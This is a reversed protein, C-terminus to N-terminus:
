KGIRMLLPFKQSWLVLSSDSSLAPHLRTYLNSEDSTSTALATLEGDRYYFIDTNVNQKVDVLGDSLWQEGSVFVYRHLSAYSAFGVNVGLAPFQRKNLSTASPLLDESKFNYEYLTSHPSPLREDILSLMLSGTLEEAPVKYDYNNAVISFSSQHPFGVLEYKPSLALTGTAVTSDLWESKATEILGQYYENQKFIQYYVAVLNVAYEVDFDFVGGSQLVHGIYQHAHMEYLRSNLPDVEALLYLVTLVEATTLNPFSPTKFYLQSTITEDLQSPTPQNFYDQLKVVGSRVDALATELLVSTGPREKKLLLEHLTLDPLVLVNGVYYSTHYVHKDSFDTTDKQAEKIRTLAKLRENDDKIFNTRASFFLSKIDPYSELDHIVKSNFAYAQTIDSTSALDYFNVVQSSSVPTVVVPKNQQRWFTIAVVALFVVSAAVLFRMLLKNTARNTSQYYSEM